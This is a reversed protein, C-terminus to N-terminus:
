LEIILHNKLLNRDTEHYERKRRAAFWYEVSVSHTDPIETESLISNM